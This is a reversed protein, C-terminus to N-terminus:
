AHGATPATPASLALLINLVSVATTAGTTMSMLASQKRTPASSSRGPFERPPSRPRLSRSRPPLRHHIQSVFRARGVIRATTVTHACAISPGRGVTTATMMAALTAARKRVCSWLRRRHRDSGPATRRSPRTHRTTTSRSARDVIRATPEWTVSLTTRAKGAMMAPTTVGIPVAMM